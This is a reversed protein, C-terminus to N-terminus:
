QIRFCISISTFNRVAFTTCHALHTLKKEAQDSVTEVSDSPM